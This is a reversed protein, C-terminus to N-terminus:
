HTMARTFFDVTDALFGPDVRADADAYETVGGGHSMSFVHNLEPYVKLLPERNKGAALATKVRDADGPPIQIDKGGQAVFSAMKPVRGLAALIDNDFHSKLWARQKEILEKHQPPIDDPLAKGNRIAEIVSRQADLQRKVQDPPLGSQQLFAEEQIMGIEPLPRGPGAMLM